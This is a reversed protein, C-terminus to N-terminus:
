FGARLGLSSTVVFPFGPVLSYVLGWGRGLKAEAEINGGYGIWATQFRDTPKPRGFFGDSRYRKVKGLWSERWLLSPGLGIRLAYRPDPAWNFRFGFHAFGAWVDACDRYLSAAGRLLFWRTVYRDAYAEAGVQLVWYAEPDLQRPYVTGGGGPHYTLAYYNAGLAFKNLYDSLAESGDAMAGSVM